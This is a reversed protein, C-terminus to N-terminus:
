TDLSISILELVVQELEPEPESDTVEFTIVDTHLTSKAISLENYSQLVLTHEGVSLGQTDM